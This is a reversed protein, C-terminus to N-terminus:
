MIVWEKVPKRAPNLSSRLHVTRWGWIDFPWFCLCLCVKKSHVDALNAVKMNESVKYVAIKKDNVSNTKCLWSNHETQVVFVQVTETLPM